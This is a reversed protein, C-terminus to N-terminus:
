EFRLRDRVTIAKAVQSNLIMLRFYRSIQLSVLKSINLKIVQPVKVKSQVDFTSTLVVMKCTYIMLNM